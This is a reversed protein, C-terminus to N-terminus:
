LQKVFKHKSRRKQNQHYVFASVATGTVAGFFVDSGWHSQHQMRSVAVFSATGYSLIGVWWKKGSHLFVSTATAFAMSSHGSFFSAYADGKGNFPGEFNSSSLGTSPRARGFIEKTILTAAATYVQAQLADEGLNTLSQNKTIIGTGLIVISGGVLYQPFIARGGKGFGRGLPSQWSRFPKNIEDDLLYLGTTTAITGGAIAWEKGKWHLPSELLHVGNTWYSKLYQSTSFHYTTDQITTTTSDQASVFLSFFSILFTLFPKM